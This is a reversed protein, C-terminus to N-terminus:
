GLWWAIVGLYEGIASVNRGEELLATGLRYARECKDRRLREVIGCDGSFLNNKANQMVELGSIKLAGEEAERRGIAPRSSWAPPM